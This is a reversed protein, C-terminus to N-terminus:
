EQGCVMAAAQLLNTCRVCFGSLGFTIFLAQQCPQVFDIHKEWMGPMAYFQLAFLTGCNRNGSTYAGWFGLRLNKRSTTGGRQRPGVQLDTEPLEQSPCGLLM